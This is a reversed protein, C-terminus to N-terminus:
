IWDDEFLVDPRGPQFDPETEIAVAMVPTDELYFLERKASCKSGSAIYLLDGCM